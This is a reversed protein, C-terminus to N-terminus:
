RFCWELPSHAIRAHWCLRKQQEGCNHCIMPDCSFECRFLDWSIMWDLRSSLACEAFSSGPSCCLSAMSIWVLNRNVELSKWLCMEKQEQNIPKCVLTPLPVPFAWLFVWPVAIWEIFFGLSRTLWKGVPEMPSCNSFAATSVMGLLLVM